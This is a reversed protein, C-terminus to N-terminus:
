STTRNQQCGLALPSNLLRVKLSGCHMLTKHLQSFWCLGCILMTTEQLQSGMLETPQKRVLHRPRSRRFPLSVTVTFILVYVLFPEGQTCRDGGATSCTQRPQRRQQQQTSLRSDGQTTGPQGGTSSLDAGVPDSPGSCGGSIHQAAETPYVPHLLVACCLVTHPGLTTTAATHLVFVPVLKLAAAAPAPAQGGAGDQCVFM